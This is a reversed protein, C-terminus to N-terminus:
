AVLELLSMQGPGHPHDPGADDWPSTSTVPAEVGAQHADGSSSPSAPEPSVGARSVPSLVVREVATASLREPDGDDLPSVLTYHYLGDNGRSCEIAHGKKRLEAIRSHAIVGLGYLEMHSAPGQRLRALVKECGTVGDSRALSTRSRAL